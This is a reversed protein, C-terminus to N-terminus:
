GKRTLNLVREHTSACFCISKRHLAYRLRRRCSPWMNQFHSMCKNPRPRARNQQSFLIFHSTLFTLHQMRFYCHLFKAYSILTKLMVDNIHERTDRRIWFSSAKITSPRVCVCVCVCVCACVCVCEYWLVILIIIFIIRHTIMLIIKHVFFFIM